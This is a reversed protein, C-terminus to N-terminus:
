TLFMADFMGSALEGAQYASVSELSSAVRQTFRMLVQRIMVRKMGICHLQPM